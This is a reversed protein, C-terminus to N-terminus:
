TRSYDSPRVEGGSQNPSRVTQPQEIRVSAPAPVNPKAIPTVPQGVDSKSM